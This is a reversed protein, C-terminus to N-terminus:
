NAFLRGPADSPSPAPAAALLFVTVVASWAFLWVTPMNDLIVGQTPSQWDLLPLALRLYLVFLIAPYLGAARPWRLATWVAMGYLALALLGAVIAFATAGPWPGVPDPGRELDIWGTSFRWTWRAHMLAPVASLFLLGLYSRRVVAPDLRLSARNVLFGTLLAAGCLAAVSVFFETM